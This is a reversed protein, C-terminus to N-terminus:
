LDMFVLLKPQTLQWEMRLAVAFYMEATTTLALLM